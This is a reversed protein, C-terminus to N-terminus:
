PLQPVQGRALAELAKHNLALSAGQGALTLYVSRNEEGVYGRVLQDLVTDRQQESGQGKMVNVDLTVSQATVSNLASLPGKERTRIEGWWEPFILTYGGVEVAKMNSM